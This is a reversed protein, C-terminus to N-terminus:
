EHKSINGDSHFTIDNILLVHPLFKYLLSSGHLITQMSFLFTAKHFAVKKSQNSWYIKTIKTTNTSNKTLFIMVFPGHQWCNTRIRRHHLIMTMLLGNWFSKTLFINQIKSVYPRQKSKVSRKTLIYHPEIHNYPFQIEKTSVIPKTYLQNFLVQIAKKSPKWFAVDTTIQKNHKNCYNIVYIAIDRIDYM